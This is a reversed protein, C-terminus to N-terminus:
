AVVDEGIARLVAALWVLAYALPETDGNLIRRLEAVDDTLQGLTLDTPQAYPNYRSGSPISWYYDRGLSVNSIGREALHEYLRDTVRRLEDLSIEM